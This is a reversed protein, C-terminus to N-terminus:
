MLRLPNLISLFDFLDSNALIFEGGIFQRTRYDNHWPGSIWHLSMYTCTHTSDGVCVSVYWCM